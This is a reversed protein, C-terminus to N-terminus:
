RVLNIALTIAALLMMSISVALTTLKIRREGLEKTARLSEKHFNLHDEIRGDVEEVLKGLRHEAGKVQQTVEKRVITLLEYIESNTVRQSPVSDEELM